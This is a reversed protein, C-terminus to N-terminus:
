CLLEEVLYETNVGSMWLLSVGWPTSRRQVEDTDQVTTETRKFVPEENFFFLFGAGKQRLVRDCLVLVTTCLRIWLLALHAM